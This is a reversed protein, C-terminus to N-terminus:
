LTANMSGTRYGLLDLAVFTFGFGVLAEHVSRRVRPDLLLAIEDEAVEIRAVTGHNRVRLQVFGMDLLFQEAQDVRALAEPTIREGFPFRSALCAFSQKDATPLDLLASLARIEDKTLGAARLPSQVGMEAVAKLGPRYDGEDDLNSGEVIHRLGRETAVPAIKAFLESKCLYCREPPNDAFGEIDLEESDVIVHPIGRAACFAAAERLEREPFSCSRATVATCGEPGLESFAVALLFSSDVGGSFAVAVSGLNRLGARLTKLKNLLIPRERPIEAM